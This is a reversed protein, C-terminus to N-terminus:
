KIATQLNTKNQKTKQVPTKHLVTQGPIRREGAEHNNIYKNVTNVYYIMCISFNPFINVNNNYHGRWEFLSSTVKLASRVLVSWVGTLPLQFPRDTLQSECDERLAIVAPMLWGGCRVLARMQPVTGRVECSRVQNKLFRRPQMILREKRLQNLFAVAPGPAEQRQTPNLKTGSDERQAVVSYM